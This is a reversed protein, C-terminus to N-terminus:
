TNFAVIELSVQVVSWDMNNEYQKNVNLQTRLGVIELFHFETADPGPLTFHLLSSRLPGGPTVM